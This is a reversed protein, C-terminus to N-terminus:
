RRQFQALGNEFLSNVASGFLSVTVFIVVAISGILLAYESAVAGAENQLLRHFLSTTTKMAM